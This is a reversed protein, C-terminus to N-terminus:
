KSCPCFRELNMLAAAGSLTTGFFIARKNTLFNTITKNAVTSGTAVIIDCWDLLNALPKNGDEVLVNYKVKDINDSDLDVVRVKFNKGLKELMAPQFGILAIKPNDYESKIYEIFEDACKEPEEDKCHVTNDTLKLYRCVANLTAIYVATDFNTRLPMEIIDKITGNFNDAMDTFAQGKIGKFNAELLKEKGKIIPYDKKIPNGIAEEINLPRGTIKINENLLKNTEVINKFKDFLDNYFDQEKMLIKIM